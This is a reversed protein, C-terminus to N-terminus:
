SRLNQLVRHYFEELCENYEMEVGCDKFAYKVIFNESQIQEKSGWYNDNSEFEKLEEVIYEELTM